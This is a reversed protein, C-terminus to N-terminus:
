RKWEIHHFSKQKPNTPIPARCSECCNKRKWYFRPAARRELFFVRLLECMFLLNLFLPVFSVSSPLQLSLLLTGGHREIRQDRPRSPPLCNCRLPASVVPPSQHHRNSSALPFRPPSLSALSVQSHRRNRYASRSSHLPFSRPLRSHIQRLQIRHM